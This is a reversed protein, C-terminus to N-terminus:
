WSPWGAPMPVTSKTGKIIAPKTEGLATLFKNFDQGSNSAYDGGGHSNYDDTLYGFSGNSWGMEMNTLLGDPGPQAHFNCIKTNATLTDGQKVTPMCDEAMYVFKGQAPGDTLQYMIYAGDNGTGLGPWDSGTTRVSIVKGDGVAYIPGDDGGYDVGGDVREPQLNKIDRLPNMYTGPTIPAPATGGSDDAPLLSPDFIAGDSQISSLILQCPNNKKYLLQGTDPDQEVNDPNNLFDSIDLKKTNPDYKALPGNTCNQDFFQDPNAPIQDDTYGVDKVGDAASQSATPAAFAMSGSAFMNDFASAFTQLPNLLTSELGNGADLSSTPMDMAMRSILSYSSNTDFMRAFLPMSDFAVKDKQLEQNRINTMASQSIQACGLETQCSDSGAVHAGIGAIDTIRGPTLGGVTGLGASATKPDPVDQEFPSTILKGTLWTTFDQIKNGAYDLIAPCGVIYGVTHCATDFVPGIAGSVIEGVKSIVGGLQSLGPISGAISSIEDTTSNGAAIDEEPCLLGGAGKGAGGQCPDETNSTVSDAYTTGFFNDFISATHTTSSSGMISQIYPTDTSLADAFSGQLAATTHGSKMESSMTNVLEFTSVAASANAAYGMYRVMPGIKDALNVVRAAMFVWGIVPIAKVATDGVTSSVAEGAFREAINTTITRTLTKAVGDKSIGEAQKILDAVKETGYKEAADLLQQKIKKQAPSLRTDDEPSAPDLATNCFDAGALVCQGVVGLNSNLNGLVNRALMAKFGLSANSKWDKFNDRATCAFLCHPVGYKTKLLSWVKFRVYTKKWFTEDSLGEDLRSSVLNRVENTSLGTKTDQLNFIDENNMINYDHGNLSLTFRNGGGGSSRIVIGYNKAMKQELHAQKWGTFLQKVPGDSGTIAGVCNADITSHCRGSSIGPMVQTVLYRSYLNRTEKAIANNSGAMFNTELNTVIHEIKLPLMALFVIIGAFISGGAAAGAIAIRKKLKSNGRMTAEFKNKKKADKKSSGSARYGKGVTDDATKEEDDKLEDADKPAKDDEGDSGSDSSAAASTGQEEALLKDIDDIANGANKSLESSHRFDHAPKWGQDDGFADDDDRRPPQPQKFEQRAM